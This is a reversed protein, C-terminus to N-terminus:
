PAATYNTGYNWRFAVGDYVFSLIDEAGEASSLTIIGQGDAIVKSNAPLALTHGGGAGQTVILIGSAGNPCNDIDLTRNGGLTVKAQKLPYGDFDWTITAADTLDEYAPAHVANILAKTTNINTPVAYAGMVLTEFDIDSGDELGIHATIKENSPLTFEYQATGTEPVALTMEFSGDVDIDWRYSDGPHTDDITAFARVLRSVVAGGLWPKGVLRQISGVVKRTLAM